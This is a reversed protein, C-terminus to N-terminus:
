TLVGLRAVVAITAVVAVTASQAPASGATRDPDAVAPLVLAPVLMLGVSAYAVVVIPRDTQGRLAGLLAGLAPLAAALWFTALAARAHVPLTRRRLALSVLWLALGAGYLITALAFASPQGM